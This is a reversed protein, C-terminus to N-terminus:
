SEIVCTGSRQALRGTDTDTARTVESSLNMNNKDLVWVDYRPAREENGETLMGLVLSRDSDNLVDLLLEFDQPKEAPRVRYIYTLIANAGDVEFRFVPSEPAGPLQTLINCYYIVPKAVAHLSLLAFTLLLLVKTM